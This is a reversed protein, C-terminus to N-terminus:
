LRMLTRLSARMIMNAWATSLWTSKGTKKCMLFHQNDGESNVATVNYFYVEKAAGGGGQTMGSGLLSTDDDVVTM